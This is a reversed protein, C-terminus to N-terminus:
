HFVPPSGVERSRLGTTRRLRPTLIAWPVTHDEELRGAAAAEVFRRFDGSRGVHDAVSRRAVDDRSSPGLSCVRPTRRRAVSM